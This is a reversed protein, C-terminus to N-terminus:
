WDLLELSLFLEYGYSLSLLKHYVSIRTTYRNFLLM